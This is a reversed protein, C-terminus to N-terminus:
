VWNKQWIRRIKLKKTKETSTHPLRTQSPSWSWIAMPPTSAPLCWEVLATWLSDTKFWRPVSRTSSTEAHQRVSSCQWSFTAKVRSNTKSSCVSKCCRVRLKIKTKQLILLEKIQRIQAPNTKITGSRKWLTKNTRSQIKIWDIQHLARFISKWNM